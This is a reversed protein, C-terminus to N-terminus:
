YIALLWWCLLVWVEKFVCVDEQRLRDRFTTPSM